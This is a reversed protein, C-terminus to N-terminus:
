SIAKLGFAFASPIAYKSSLEERSALVFSDSNIETAQARYYVMDWKKHTFIHTAKGVFKTQKVKIGRRVLAKKAEELSEGEVNPFEYLSALLGTGPRKCIVYKGEFLILFVILPESKKEKKAKKAPYLLEKGAQHAKCAEAFPCQLCHPTGSPLCILEGLDMLAQNIIGADVNEMWKQFYRMCTEREKPDLLTKERANLRAFVRYLNGDVAVQKDGYCISAIASATYEGIGPLKLLEEKSTPFVGAYDSMVVKACKYLNRARSYYGLGEWYKIVEDEESSALDAVDPFRSLFRSFYGKVAEVRTQQLMIESIWVRYPDKNLRWPLDRSNESYWQILNNSLPEM